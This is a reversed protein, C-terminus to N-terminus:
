NKALAELSQKITPVSGAEVAARRLQHFKSLLANAEALAKIRLAFAEIKPGPIAFLAVDDTLVDLYARAGCCGLSLAARGTNVVQPIVACAPRGLAPAISADVQQAAEAVILSQASNVFLLVVDIPNKSEALPEYDVHEPKADLVPIFKLDAETVYGLDGFVKLADVLDSQQATSTPLNHTFVGVACGAHDQASTSFSRVAGEQWFRCGAPVRPTSQPSLDTPGNSFSIAVPQQKLDLSTRLVESIETSTM